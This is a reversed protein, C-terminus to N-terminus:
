AAIDLVDDTGEEVALTDTHAEVSAMFNWLANAREAEANSAPTTDPEARNSASPAAKSADEDAFELAKTLIHILTWSNESTDIQLGHPPTTKAWGITDLLTYIHRLIEAPGRFWEPHAERDTSFAADDLTEATLGIEAYAARRLWDVISAPITVLTEGSACGNLAYDDQM